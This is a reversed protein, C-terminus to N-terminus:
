FSTSGSVTFPVIDTVKGACVTHQVRRWTSNSLSEMVIAASYIGIVKGTGAGIATM